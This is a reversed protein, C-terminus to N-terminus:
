PSAGDLAVLFTSWGCQKHNELDDDDPLHILISLFTVQKPVLAQVRAFGYIHGDEQAIRDTYQHM